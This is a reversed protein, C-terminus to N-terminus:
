RLRIIWVNKKTWFSYEFSELFGSVQRRKLHHFYRIGILNTNIVTAPTTPFLLLKHVGTFESYVSVSFTNINPQDIPTFLALM